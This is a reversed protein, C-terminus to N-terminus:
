AVAVDYSTDYDLDLNDAIAHLQVVVVFSTNDLGEEDVGVDVHVM